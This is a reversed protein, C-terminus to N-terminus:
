WNALTGIPQLEVRVLQPAPNVIQNFHWISATSTSCNETQNLWVSWNFHQIKSRTSTRFRRLQLAAIAQQLLLKVGGGITVATKPTGFVATDLHICLRKNLTMLSLLSFTFILRAHRRKYLSTAAIYATSVSIEALQYNRRCVIGGQIRFEAMSHPITHTRRFGGIVHIYHLNTYRVHCHM